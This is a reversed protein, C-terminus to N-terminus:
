GLRFTRSVPLLDPPGEVLKIVTPQLPKELV